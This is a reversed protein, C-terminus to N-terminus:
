TAVARVEVGSYATEPCRAAIATAREQTACEVLFYGALHEKAELYPGDTTLMGGDRVRVTTTQTPDALGEGGIYEGTATLEAMLEAHRRLMTERDSESLADWGPRNSHILLM